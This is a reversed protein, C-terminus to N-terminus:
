SPPKAAWLTCYGKPAIPGKVLTCGGCAAGDKPAQYLACNACNKAAEPSNAVYKYNTRTAKDADSLGALDNCAGGGGAAPKKAESKGEGGAAPAKTEPKKDESKCASLLAGGGVALVGAQALIQLAERRSTPSLTM